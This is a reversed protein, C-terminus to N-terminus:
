KVALAMQVHRMLAPRVLRLKVVYQMTEKKLRSRELVHLREEPDLNEEWVVMAKKVRAPGGNYAAAVLEQTLSPFLGAKDRTEQPFQALLYDLYVVQATLSTEPDRMAVEFDPNLKLAPYLRVMSAYTSPIFQVLGLAGASSRSYDYADEKNMAMTVLFREVQRLADDKVSTNDVHEIMLILKALELDTADALTKGPYAKSMAGSQQIREFVKDYMQDIFASGELVTDQTHVGGSYPTYIVDQNKFLPKKKTGISIAIPYRVAVIVEQEKAVFTSNVGNAYTVRLGAADGEVPKIKAGNKLITVSRLADTKQNWIMVEVKKWDSDETSTSETLRPLLEQRAREVAALVPSAPLTAVPAETATTPESPPLPLPGIKQELEELTATMTNSAPHFFRGDQMQFVGAPLAAASAHAVSFGFLLCLSSLFLYGPKNM